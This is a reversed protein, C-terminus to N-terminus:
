YKTFVPRIFGVGVNERARTRKGSLLPSMCASLNDQILKIAELAKETSTWEPTNVPNGCERRDNAIVNPIIDNGRFRSDIGRTEEGKSPPPNLHPHPQSEQEEGLYDNKLAAMLWGAPRQINKMEMLLDLKEEIKKVSYEKLMKEIFEEKLNLDELQERIAQGTYHEKSNYPAHIKEEAQANCASLDGKEKIKKFDVAVVADKERKTTTANTINLNTNNTPLKKGINPTIKEEIHPFINGISLTNKVMHLPTVQYINRRYNGSATKGKSIKKILGHKLLIQHFKTISKPTFQMKKGLTVLTPWALDKGKYCYNLLQIYLMGPGTGLIEVCNDLFYSSIIVYGEKTLQKQNVLFEKEM